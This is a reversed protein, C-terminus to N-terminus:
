SEHRTLHHDEDMIASLVFRSRNRKLLNKRWRNEFVAEMTKIKEKILVSKPVYLNAGWDYVKHIEELYSSNSFIIVPVDKLKTSKRIDMLCRKAKLCPLNCSIFIIDPLQQGPAIAEVLESFYYISLETEFPVQQLADKFIKRPSNEELFLFVRIPEQKTELKKV